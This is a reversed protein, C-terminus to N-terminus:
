RMAPREARNTAHVLSNRFRQSILDMSRRSHLAVSIWHCLRRRLVGRIGRLLMASLWGAAWLHAKAKVITGSNSALRIRHLEPVRSTVTDVNAAYRQKPAVAGGGNARFLDWNKRSARFRDALCTGGNTSNGGSRSIRHVSDNTGNKSGNTHGNTARPSSAHAHSINSVTSRGNPARPVTTSATRQHDNGPPPAAAADVAALFKASLVRKANEPKLVPKPQQKLRDSSLYKPTSAFCLWKRFACVRSLRQNKLWWRQLVIVLVGVIAKLQAYRWAIVHLRWRDFVGPLMANAYRHGLSRFCPHLLAL